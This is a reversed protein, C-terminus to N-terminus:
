RNQNAFPHPTPMGGAGERESVCVQHTDAVKNSCGGGEEESPKSGSVEMLYWGLPIRGLGPGNCGNGGRLGRGSIFHDRIQIWSGASDLHRVFRDGSVLARDAELKFGPSVPPAGAPPCTMTRKAIAGVFAGSELRLLQFDGFLGRDAEALALGALIRRITVPGM